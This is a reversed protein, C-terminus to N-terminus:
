PQTFAHLVEPYGVFTYDVGSSEMNNKFETVQEPPIFPDAEGM